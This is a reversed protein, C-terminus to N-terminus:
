KMALSDIRYPPLSDMCYYLHPTSWFPWEPSPLPLGSAFAPELM